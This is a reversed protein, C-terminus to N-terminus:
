SQQVVVAGTNPVPHTLLLLPHPNDVNMMTGVGITFASSYAVSTHQRRRGRGSQGLFRTSRKFRM